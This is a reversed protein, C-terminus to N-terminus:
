QRTTPPALKKSIAMGGMITMIGLLIGTMALPGALSLAPMALLLQYDNGGLAMATGIGMLVGAFLHKGIDRANPLFIRFRRYKWAGITMGILIMALIESREKTPFLEPNRTITALGVDRVFASPTWHPQMFYLAGALLGVLMIGSWVHWDARRKVYVYVSSIFLFALVARSLLHLLPNIAEVRRYDFQVGSYQLLIWGGLWGLITLAMRLDGSSLRTITAISCGGNLAAGLGFTVGGLFFGWHLEFRQLHMPIGDPSMLPLFLYIWYGTALIAIMRVPKGLMLEHVGRVTCLGTTQAFYGILYSFLLAIILSYM